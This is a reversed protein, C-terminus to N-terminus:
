VEESDLITQLRAAIHDRIRAIPESAIPEMPVVWRMVLIGLVEAMLLHYRTSSDPGGVVTDLTDTVIGAVADRVEDVPHSPTLLTRIFGIAAGPSGTEEMISIILDAVNTGANARDEDVMVQVCELPQFSTAMAATFLGMKSGFYYSLLALDVEAAAAIGRLTAGNYGYKDFATIAEQLIRTRTINGRETFGTELEPSTEATEAADHASDVFDGM